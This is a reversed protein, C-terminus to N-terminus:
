SFMIMKLKNFMRELLGQKFDKYLFDISCLGKSPYMKWFLEDYKTKMKSREISPNAILAEEYNSFKKKLPLNDFNVHGKETYILVLSTGKDDDMEPHMKWVEWFDGLAIDSQSKGKKSPCEYCSPRMYFDNLFGRMFTNKNRYSSLVTNKKGDATVEALTLVFGFKKWGWRKYRFNISKVTNLGNEKLISHSLVSNKEHKARNGIQSSLYDRWIRTSPVGHCIVEVALLKEYDKKLYSKLGAIQCSTGTFLVSRGVELFQKAEVFTNEIRSQVYKSTQLREIDKEMEISIHHVEWKDDFAAGFVVGGIRITKAALLYFLGGSSSSMRVDDNDYYAAYVSLPIREKYENIAPCVSECLQCNVCLKVDIIPYAFGREDEKM